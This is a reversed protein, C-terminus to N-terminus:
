ENAVHDEWKHELTVTRLPTLRHVTAKGDFAYIACRSANEEADRIHQVPKELNFVGADNVWVVVYLDVSSM